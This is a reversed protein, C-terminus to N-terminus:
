AVAHGMIRTKLVAVVVGSEKKVADSEQQFLYLSCRQNHLYKALSPLLADAAPASSGHLRNGAHPYPVRIGWIDIPGALLGSAM